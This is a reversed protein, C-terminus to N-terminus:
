FEFYIFSSVVGSAANVLWLLLVAWASVACLALTDGASSGKDRSLKRDMGAAYVIGALALVLATWDMGCHEMASSLSGWSGFLGALVSLAGELSAARFFVWGIAVLIMTRVWAFASLVPANRSISIRSCLKDM